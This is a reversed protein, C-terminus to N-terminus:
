IKRRKRKCTLRDVASRLRTFPEHPLCKTLMDAIMESTACYSLLITGKENHYRIVHHRLDIHKSHRSAMNNQGLKIATENYEQFHIPTEVEIDLEKLVMVIWIVENLADSLVRYEAESSSQSSM